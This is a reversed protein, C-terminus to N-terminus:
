MTRSAYTHYRPGADLTVLMMREGPRKALFDTGPLAKRLRAWLARTVVFTRFRACKPSAYCTWPARRSSGSGPTRGADRPRKEPCSPPITVAPTMLGVAAGNQGTAVM